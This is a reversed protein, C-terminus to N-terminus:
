QTDMKDGPHDDKDNNRDENKPDEQIPEAKSSEGEKGKEQKEKEQRAKEDELSMRLALALEPDVSPDVGLDYMDNGGSSAGAAAPGGSTGDADENIIPSSTLMDSLIHPGPPITVLHSNDGSNVGEIFKELKETNEAEQGFNIFDVAINNKKMKKALKVLDKTDEQIPSAVFAVVRQRQVKNQRHKLALAAVQIGTSLHTTGHVSTEHCGSLIKGFDSTLTALVQPGHGGMSMLGVTSEPNANTKATFIMHVADLQAQFRTPTYDGNRTYESNDLRCM